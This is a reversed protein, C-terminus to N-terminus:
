IGSPKKRKEELEDPTLGRKAAEEEVKLKESVARWIFEPDTQTVAPLDVEAIKWWERLIERDLQRKSWGSYGRLVIFWPPPPDLKRLEEAREGEIYYIGTDSLPIGGEFNDVGTYLGSIKDPQVPGGYYYGPNKEDPRNVILGYAGLSDHKVMVVVTQEFNPGGSGQNVLLKHHASESERLYAGLAFLLLALFVLLYGERRKKQAKRAKQEPTLEIKQTQKKETNM